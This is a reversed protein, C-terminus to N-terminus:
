VNTGKFINQITKSFFLPWLVSGVLVAFWYSVEKFSKNLKEDVLCYVVYAAGFSTGIALYMTLLIYLLIELSM